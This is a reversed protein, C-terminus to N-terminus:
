AIRDASPPTSEGMQSTTLNTIMSKREACRAPFVRCLNTVSRSAVLSGTTPCFVSSVRRITPCGYTARFSAERHDCRTAPGSQCSSADHGRILSRARTSAFQAMVEPNSTIWSCDAEQVLVNPLRSMQGAAPNNGARIPPVSTDGNRRLHVNRYGFSDRINRRRRLKANKILRVAPKSGAVAWVGVAPAARGAGGVRSGLVGPNTFAFSSGSPALAGRVGAMLTPPRPFM